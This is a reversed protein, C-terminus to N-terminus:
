IKRVTSVDYGSAREFYFLKIFNYQIINTAWRVILAICLWCSTEFVIISQRRRSHVTMLRVTIRRARPVCRAIFVFKRDVFIFSSFVSISFREDMVCPTNRITKNSLLTQCSRCQVILMVHKNHPHIYPPYTRAFHRYKSRSVEKLCENNM